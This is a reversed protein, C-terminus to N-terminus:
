SRSQVYCALGGINCKCWALIHMGFFDKYNLWSFYIDPCYFFALHVNAFLAPVKQKCWGWENSTGDLQQVMYNDIQTQETPDQWVFGYLINLELM